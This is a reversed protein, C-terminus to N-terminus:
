ATARKALRSEGHSIIVCYKSNHDEPERRYLVQAICDLLAFENETILDRVEDLESMFQELSYKYKVLFLDALYEYDDGNFSYSHKNLRASKIVSVLYKVGPKRRSPRIVAGELWSIERGDTEPRNLILDLTSLPM